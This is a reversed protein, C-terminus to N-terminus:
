TAAAASAPQERRVVEAWEADFPKGSRLVGVAIMLLKRMAAGLAVMKPKGAAVLRDYFAKVRPNHSLATVTPLYMAKRLHPNGRKSLRTRKRVSTGSQHQQPSLGAYAAAAGSSAFAKADGLEALLKHATLAGIGPISRLLDADSQLHPFARVHAAIDKEVHKLEKELFRVQRKLSAKVEKDLEPQDLRNKEQQASDLLNQRRRVLAALKRFEPAPPQWPPPSHLRCYLAIVSADLKDTKNCIGAALAAHRVRAPNVVSIKQGAQALFLAIGEGYAGTAELAFHCAQEKALALVWNLLQAWGAASNAFRKHRKKNGPTLSCVDLTRKSVDIGIHFASILDM